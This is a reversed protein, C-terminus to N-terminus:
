PSRERNRAFLVDRLHRIDSSNMVLTERLGVGHLRAYMTAFAVAGVVYSASSAVAAGEIGMRPILVFNLAVNLTAIAGFVPVALRPRGSGALDAYLVKFVVAAAIGPLLLRTARVAPAFTEGFLSSLVWPAVVYMGVCGLGVIPLTTRLVHTTTAVASARERSQASDSFLVVGLAAPIQWLLEALRVGASYLGVSEVSALRELLIVDIRYNLDLLFLAVAYAFGKSVLAKPVGAVWAPRPTAVRALVRISYLAVALAGLFYSITAGPPGWGALLLLIALALLFVLRQTLEMRNFAGIKGKALAVGQSYTAILLLPISAIAPALTGVGYSLTPGTAFVALTAAVGVLSTLMAIALLSSVIDQDRFHRQGMTYTVAQRVGLDALHLVITITAFIATYIGFGDPGLARALVVAAVLGAGLMIVRTGLVTLTNAYFARSTENAVNPTM